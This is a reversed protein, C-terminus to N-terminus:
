AMRRITDLVYRARARSSHHNLFHEHGAVAMERARDPDNLLARVEGPVDDPKEVYVCHKGDEPANPIHIRPKEAVQALGFAFNEWFRNSDWNQACNFHIGVLATTMRRHYEEPSPRTGKAQGKTLLIGDGAFNGSECRKAGLAEAMAIRPQGASGGGHYTAYYCLGRKTDWDLAPVRSAPYMLPLSVGWDAGVPLERKFYAALPRGMCAEYETRRNRVEDSFDVAVIPIHADLSAYIGAVRPDTVAVICLDFGWLHKFANRTPYCLDSDLDCDDRAGPSSLHFTPNPPWDIVNEYGLVEVLGDFLFAAGYDHSHQGSGALYLVKM